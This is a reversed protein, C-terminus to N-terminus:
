ESFTILKIIIQFTDRHSLGHYLYVQVFFRRRTFSYTRNLLDHIWNTWIKNKGTVPIACKSAYTNNNKTIKKTKVFRAIEIMWPIPVCDEWGKNHWSIILADMNLQRNASTSAMAPLDRTSYRVNSTSVTDKICIATPDHTQLIWDIAIRRCEM